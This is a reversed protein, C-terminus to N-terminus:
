RSVFKLGVFSLYNVMIKYRDEAIIKFFLNEHTIILKNFGEGLVMLGFIERVTEEISVAKLYGFQQKKCVFDSLNWGEMYENSLYLVKEEHNVKIQADLIKRNCFSTHTFHYIKKLTHWRSMLETQIWMTDENKSFKMIKTFFIMSQQKDIM